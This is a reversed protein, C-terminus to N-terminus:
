YSTDDLVNQYDRKIDYIFYLILIPSTILESM